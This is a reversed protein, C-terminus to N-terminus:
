NKISAPPTGDPAKFGGGNKGLNQYYKTMAYNNAASGLSTTANGMATNQNQNSANYQSSLAALKDRFREEEMARINQQDGAKYIDIDKQQEDLNAAIQQNQNQNGAAIKGVSGIIGRTGSDAASQVQTSALRAQEQQQAEAGLKSVSLSDGSNVLESSKMNAIERQAAKKEKAAKVSQSISYAATGAAIVAGTVAAM